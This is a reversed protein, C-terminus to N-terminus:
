PEVARGRRVSLAALTAATLWIVALVILLGRGYNQPLASRMNPDRGYGRVFPFAYLSVIMTAMLAGTVIGRLPRRLLRAVLVGVGCVVPALVLDHLLASEIFLRGVAAPNSAVHDHLLGRIGLLIVVGGVAVGAWFL